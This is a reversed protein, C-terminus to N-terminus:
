SDGVARRLLELDRATTTSSAHRQIPGSHQNCRDAFEKAWGFLAQEGRADTPLEPSSQFFQWQEAANSFCRAAASRAVGRQDWSVLDFRSRLEDSFLWPWGARERLRDVGSQGPGGFNVFLTGIRRSPDAAPLKIVALDIQKGHPRHYDLPVEATACLFGDGCSAWSLTPTDAAEALPDIYADVTDSHAIAPSFTAVSDAGIVIALALMLVHRPRSSYVKNGERDGDFVAPLEAAATIGWTSESCCAWSALWVHPREQPDACDVLHQFLPHDEGDVAVARPSSAFEAGRRITNRVASAPRRASGDSSDRGNARLLEPM